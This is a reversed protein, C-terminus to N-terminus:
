KETHCECFSNNNDMFHINVPDVDGTGDDGMCIYGFLTKISGRAKGKNWPHKFIPKCFVCTECTKM